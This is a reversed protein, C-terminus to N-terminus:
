PLCEGGEANRVLQGGVAAGFEGSGVEQVVPADVNEAPVNLVKDGHEGASVFGVIRPVEVQLGSLFPVGSCDSGRGPSTSPGCWPGGGM